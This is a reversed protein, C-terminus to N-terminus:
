YLRWSVSAALAVNACLARYLPTNKNPVKSVERIMSMVDFKPIDIKAMLDQISENTLRAASEVLSVGLQTNMQRITSPIPTSKPEHSEVECSTSPYTVPPASTRIQRTKVPGTLVAKPRLPELSCSPSSVPEVPTSRESSICLYSRKRNNHFIRKRKIESVNIYKPAPEKKRESEPEVEDPDVFIIGCDTDDEAKVSLM